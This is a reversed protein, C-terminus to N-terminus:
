EVTVTKNAFFKRKNSCSCQPCDGSAIRYIYCPYECAVPPCRKGNRELLLKELKGLRKSKNENLQFSSSRESASDKLLTENAGCMGNCTKNVLQEEPLDCKCEPCKSVFKDDKSKPASDFRYDVDNLFLKCPYKCMDIPPCDRLWNDQEYYRNEHMEEM